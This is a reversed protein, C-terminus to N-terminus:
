ELSEVMPYNDIEPRRNSCDLLLYKLEHPDDDYKVDLVMGSAGRHREREALSAHVSVEFGRAAAAAAGGGIWWGGLQQRPHVTKGPLGCGPSLFM